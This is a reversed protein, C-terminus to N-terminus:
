TDLPHDRTSGHLTLRGAIQVRHKGQSVTQFRAAAGEYRIDPFATVELVNGRMGSEIEQRDSAKVNDVLQLSAAVITLDVRLSEVTDQEFSLVGGFDSVAFTPNHGMFSLMGTAFAQVTFRSLRPDLRYRTAMTVGEGTEGRPLPSIM